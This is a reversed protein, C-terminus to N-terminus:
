DFKLLEYPKVDLAKAIGLLSSYKPDVLGKEIRSLTSIEISNRYALASLSLKKAERLKKIKQGLKKLDKENVQM